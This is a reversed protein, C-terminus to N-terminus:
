SSRITARRSDPTGGDCWPPFPLPLIDPFFYERVLVRRSCSFDTNIDPSELSVEVYSAAEDSSESIEALLVTSGQEANGQM